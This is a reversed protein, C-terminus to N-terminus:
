LPVEECDKIHQRIEKGYKMMFNLATMTEYEQKLFDYDYEAQGAMWNNIDKEKM